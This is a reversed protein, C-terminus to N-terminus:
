FVFISQISKFTHHLSRDFMKKGEEVSSLSTPNQQARRNEKQKFLCQTHFPLLLKCHVNVLLWVSCHNAVLFCFLYLLVAVFLAIFLRWHACVVVCVLNPFVVESCDAGLRWWWRSWADVKLPRLCGCRWEAGVSWTVRWSWGNGYDVSNIQATLYSLTVKNDSILFLFLRTSAKQLNQFQFHSWCFALFEGASQKQHINVVSPIFDSNSVVFLNWSCCHSTFSCDSLLTWM